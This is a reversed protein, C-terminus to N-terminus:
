SSSKRHGGRRLRDLKESIRQRRKATEGQDMEARYLQGDRIEIQLWQGEKAEKPLLERAVNMREAVDGVLLVAVSGEFRDIVAKMM